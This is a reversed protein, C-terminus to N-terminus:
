SFNDNKVRPFYLFSNKWLNKRHRLIIVFRSKEIVLVLYCSFNPLQKEPNKEDRWSKRWDGFPGNKLKRVQAVRRNQSSEDCSMQRRERVCAVQQLNSSHIQEFSSSFFVRRRINFIHFNHLAEWGGSLRLMLCRQQFIKDCSQSWLTQATM